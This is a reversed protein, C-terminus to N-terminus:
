DGKSRGYSTAAGSLGRVRHYHLFLDDGFDLYGLFHDGFDLLFLGLNHKPLDHRSSRTTRSTTAVAVGIGTRIPWVKM